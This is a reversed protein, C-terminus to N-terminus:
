KGGAEALKRRAMYDRQKKRNACRITCYKRPTGPHDPVVYEFKKKCEACLLKMAPEENVAGSQVM